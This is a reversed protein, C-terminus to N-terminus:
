RPQEQSQAWAPGQFVRSWYEPPTLGSLRAPGGWSSVYSTDVDRLGFMTEVGTGEARAAFLRRLLTWVGHEVGPVAPAWLAPEYVQFLGYVCDIHERAIVRPADDITVTTVCDEVMPYPGQDWGMSRAWVGWLEHGREHLSRVREPNWSLAGVMLIRM